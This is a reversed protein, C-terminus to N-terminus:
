SLPRAIFYKPQLDFQPEGENRDNAQQPRRSRGRYQRGQSNARNGRRVERARRFYRRAKNDGYGQLVGRLFAAGRIPLQLPHSFQSKVASIVPCSRGRKGVWGLLGVVSAVVTTVSAISDNIDVVRTLDTQHSHRAGTPIMVRYNPRIGPCHGFFVVGHRAATIGKGVCVIVPCGHTVSGCNNTRSLYSHISVKGACAIDGPCAISNDIGIADRRRPVCLISKSHLILSSTDKPRTLTGRLSVNMPCRGLGTLSISVSSHDRGDGGDLRLLARVRHLRSAALGHGLDTKQICTSPAVNNSRTVLRDLHAGGGGLACGNTFAVRNKIGIMRRGRCNPSFHIFMRSFPRLAFLASNSAMTLKRSLAFGFARTARGDDQATSPSGLQQTIRMGVVSTTRHLNNTLIVISRMALGGHFPLMASPTGITKDIGIACPRRLSFLSPVCLRSRGRLRVSPIGKGLVSMVGVTVISDAFSPGLEAVRTHKM